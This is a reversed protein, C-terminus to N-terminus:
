IMSGHYRGQFTGHVLFIHSVLFTAPFFFISTYFCELSCRCPCKILVHRLFEIAYYCTCHPSDLIGMRHWFSFISLHGCFFKWLFVRIKSFVSDKWLRNQLPLSEGGRSMDRIIFIDKELHWYGWHEHRSTTIKIKDFAELFFKLTHFLLSNRLSTDM